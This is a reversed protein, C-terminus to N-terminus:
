DRQPNSWVQNRHHPQHHVDDGGQHQHEVAGRGCLRSGPPGGEGGGEPEEDVLGQVGYVPLLRTAGLGAAGQPLQKVVPTIAEACHEDADGAAAGHPEAGVRAPHQELNHCPSLLIM